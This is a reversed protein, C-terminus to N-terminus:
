TAYQKMDGIIFTLSIILVILMRGRNTCRRFKKVAEFSMQIMMMRMMPPGDKGTLTDFVSGSPPVFTTPDDAM